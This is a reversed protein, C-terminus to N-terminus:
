EVRVVRFQGTNWLDSLGNRKAYNETRRIARKATERHKFLTAVGPTHRILVKGRYGELWPDRMFTLPFGHDLVIYGIM